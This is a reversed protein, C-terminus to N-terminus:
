IPTIPPPSKKEPPVQFSEREGKLFDHILIALFFNYDTDTDKNEMTYLLCGVGGGGGGSGCM